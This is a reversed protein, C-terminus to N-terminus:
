RGVRRWSMFDWVCWGLGLVLLLAGGMAALNRAANPTYPTEVAATSAASARAVLAAREADTTLGSANAAALARIATRAEDLAARNRAADLDPRGRIGDSVLAGLVLGLLFVLGYFKM